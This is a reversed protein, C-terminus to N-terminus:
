DDDTSCLVTLLNNALRASQVSTLKVGKERLATVAGQSLSVAGDVIVRRADVIAKAAQRKLMLSAIEPSYSIEDLRFSVVRVGIPRAVQELSSALRENIHATDSRLSPSGDRSEFSYQSVINRLITLSQQKVFVVWNAVDMLAKRPVVVEAVIVASVIVPNGDHDAVKCHRVEVCTKKTSVSRIERFFCTAYYIGPEKVEMVPVGTNLVIKHEGENLVFWSCICSPLCLLSTIKSCMPTEQLETHSLAAAPPAVDKAGDSSLIADRATPQKSITAM